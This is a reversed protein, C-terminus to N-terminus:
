DDVDIGRKRAREELNFKAIEYRTKRLKEQLDANERRLKVLEDLQKAATVAYDSESLSLQSFIAKFSANAAQQISSSTEMDYRNAIADEYKMEDMKKMIGTFNNEGKAKATAYRESFGNDRSFDTIAKLEKSKLDSLAKLENVPAGNLQKKRFEENMERVRLYSTVIQIAAQLKTQDAEMGQDLMGLLDSYLMKKNEDTEYGFPDYGIMKVVTKRNKADEETWEFPLEEKIKIKTEDIAPKYNKNLFPSDKFTYGKGIIENLILNNYEETIHTMKQKEDVNQRAKYFLDVDWYWNVSACFMLMAKEPNKDAKNYFIYQFLKKCCDKCITMHINGNCDFRAANNEDFNIYYDSIDLPRGCCSCSYKDYILIYRNFNKSINLFLDGKYDQFEQRVFYSLKGNGNDKGNKDKSNQIKKLKEDADKERLEHVIDEFNDEEEKYLRALESNVEWLKEKYLLEARNYEELDVEIVNGNKDKFLNIPNFYDNIDKIDYLNITNLDGTVEQLERLERKEDAPKKKKTEKGIIAKEQQIRAKRKLVANERKKQEMLRRKQLETLAM